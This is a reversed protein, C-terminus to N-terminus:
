DAEEVAEHSLAVDLIKKGRATIYLYSGLYSVFNAQVLRLLALWQKSESAEVLNAVPLAESSAFRSLIVMADEDSTALAESDYQNSLWYKYFKNLGQREKETEWLKQRVDVLEELIPAYATESPIGFTSTATVVEWLSIPKTGNGNVGIPPLSESTATNSEIKERRMERVEEAEVTENEGFPGLEALELENVISKLKDMNNGKWFPM